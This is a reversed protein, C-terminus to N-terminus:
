LAVQGDSCQVYTAKLWCDWLDGKEIANWQAVTGLFELTTIGSGFCVPGIRRVSVPIVLKTLSECDQFAALALQTVPRGYYNVSPLDIVSLDECAAVAWGDSNPMYICSNAFVVHMDTNITATFPESKGFYMTDYVYECNFTKGDDSFSCGKFIIFDASTGLEYTGNELSVVEVKQMVAEGEYDTACLAAYGDELFTISAVGCEANFGIGVDYGYDDLSLAYPVNYYYGQANLVPSTVTFNGKAIKSDSIVSIEHQGDNLTKLYEYSLNVITSGEELTYNSPDVTVGNIQIDQLENLPATSRFSLTSPATTYFEQGDGELREETTASGIKSELAAIIQDLLVAQTLIEANATRLDLTMTDISKATTTGSLERVKDALATMKSNVSM